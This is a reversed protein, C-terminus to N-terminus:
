NYEYIYIDHCWGSEQMVGSNSHNNLSVMNGYQDAMHSCFRNQSYFVLALHTLAHLTRSMYHHTINGQGFLFYVLLRATEKKFQGAKGM